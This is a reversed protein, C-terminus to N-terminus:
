VPYIKKKTLYGILTELNNHKDAADLKLSPTSPSEYEMDVGPLYKLKGEDAQKYIGYEDNKRCFGVDADLYVLNFNEKGIVEEVQLRIEEDPSVFSCIVLIGQDNM